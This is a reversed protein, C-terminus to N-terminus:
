PIKEFNEVESIQVETYDSLFVKAMYQIGKLEEETVSLCKTYDLEPFLIIINKYKKETRKSTNTDNACIRESKGINYGEAYAIMLRVESHPCDIDIGRRKAEKKLQNCPMNVLRHGNDKMIGKFEM